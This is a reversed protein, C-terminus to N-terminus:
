SGFVRAVLTPYVGNTPIKEGSVVLSMGTTEAGSKKGKEDSVAPDVEKNEKSPDKKARCLLTNHRKKCKKCFIKSKCDKSRHKPSLCNYCLFKAKALENRENVSLKSFKECQYNRHDESGCFACCMVSVRNELAFTGAVEDQFASKPNKGANSNLRGNFGLERNEVQLLLFELFTEVDIPEYTDDDITSSGVGNEHCKEQWKVRLDFPLKSVLIPGLIQSNKGIDVGLSELCRISIRLADSLKRLGTGDDVKPVAVSMLKSIHSNIMPLRKGYRELLLSYAKEYGSKTPQLGQIISLANGKLKSQLYAFKDSETLSTDQHVRVKFTNWFAPFNMSDGDFPALVLSELKVSPKSPKPVEPLSPKAPNLKLKLSKVRQSAKFTENKLSCEKDVVFTLDDVTLDPLKRIDAFIQNLHRLIENNVDCSAEANELEDSELASELSTISKQLAGEYVVIQTKFAEFEKSDPM